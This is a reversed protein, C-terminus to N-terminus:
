FRIKLNVGTAWDTGLKLEAGVSLSETFAFGAGLIGFIDAKGEAAYSGNTYSIEPGGYPTIKFKNVDFTKSVLAAFDFEHLSQEDILHATYGGLIAIDIPISKTEKIIQYKLEFGLLFGIDDGGSDKDVSLVGAKGEVELLYGLGYRLYPYLYAYKYDNDGDDGYGASFGSEMQGQNLSQATTFRNYMASAPHASVVFILFCLLFFILRKM